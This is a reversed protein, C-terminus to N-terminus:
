LQSKSRKFIEKNIANFAETLTAYGADDPSEFKCISRHDAYMLSVREGPLGMIASEKPVILASMTPGLSLERTEFFSYLTLGDCYHRFSDNVGALSASARELDSIYPRAGHAASVRLINNLMTAHDSGRHPTALFVMALIRSALERCSPDQQAM